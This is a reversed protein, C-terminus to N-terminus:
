AMAQLPVDESLKGRRHFVELAEGAYNVFNVWERLKFVDSDSDYPIHDPTASCLLEWAADLHNLASLEDGTFVPAPFNSEDVPRTIFDEWQDLLENMGLRPESVGQYEQVCEVYEILRNRIRQEVLQLDIENM